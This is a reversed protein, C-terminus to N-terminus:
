RTSASSRSVMVSSHARSGLAYESSIRGTTCTSPKSLRHVSALVTTPTPWPLGPGGLLDRELLREALVPSPQEGQQDRLEPAEVEGLVTEALGELRGGPVPGSLAHGAVRRRPQESRSAAPHEVPQARLRHSRALLRQEDDVRLGPVIRRADHRVRTPEHRVLPQAQHKEAGM